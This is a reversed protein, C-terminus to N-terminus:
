RRGGLEAPRTIFEGVAEMVESTQEEHPIHGVGAILMDNGLGLPGMGTALAAAEGGSSAGPTRSRDWPEANGGCNAKPIGACRSLPVTPILSRSRGPSGCGKWWRRMGPRTPGALVKLGQTTAAGVLDINEKVTFPVGHFAPVDGRTALMRDAAGAAELAQDALVVTVANSTPNGRRDAPSAGRGGGSEVQRSRLAEALELASMRWLDGLMAGTEAPHNSTVTSDTM